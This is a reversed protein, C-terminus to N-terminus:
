VRNASRYEYITQFLLAFVIIIFGIIEQLHFTEKLFVIGIFGGVIPVLYNSFAAFNVGSLRILLIYFIYVLGSSLFGLLILNMLPIASYHLQIPEGFILWIPIIEISAAILINRTLTFPSIQPQKKIMVLSLAWSASALLIALEPSLEGIRYGHVGPNILIYVGIFGALISIIYGWHFKEKKIFIPGFLMAFIPMTSIIVAAIGTRVHQQGWSVLICPLVGELFGILAYTSWPIRHKQKQKSTFLPALLVLAIMGFVVRAVGVELPTYGEIAYKTIIFQSGFIIGTVILLLYKQFM